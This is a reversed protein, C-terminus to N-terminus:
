RPHGLRDAGHALWRWPGSSIRRAWSPLALTWNAISEGGLLDLFGGVVFSGASAAAFGAMSYLAMATGRSEPPSVAVIGSTLAASDASITSAYIASVLLVIM